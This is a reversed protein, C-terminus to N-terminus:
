PIKVRMDEKIRRMVIETIVEEVGKIRKVKEILNIQNQKSICKALCLVPFEGSVQYICNIANLQELNNLVSGIPVSTNIRLSIILMEHYGIKCCDVLAIYRKIVGISNLKDLHNKIATISSGTLRSLKRLSLKGDEQLERLINKDLDDLEIEQQQMEYKKYSPAM